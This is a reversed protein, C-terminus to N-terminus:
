TQFMRSYQTEHHMAQIDSAWTASCADWLQADRSAAAVAACRERLAAAVRQGDVQGLPVARMAAACINAASAQLYLATCHEIDLDMLRATRGVAVPYCLRPLALGWIATVADCFAAGQLDTERVREASAAFARTAADLWDLDGPDASHAANLFVADARLSGMEILDALWPELTDASTVLGASIAAELGHSYAFAGVPFAPSLLQTLTLIDTTMRPQAMPMRMRAGTAM